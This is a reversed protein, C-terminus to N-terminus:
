SSKAVRRLFKLIEICQDRALRWAGYVFNDFLLTVPSEMRKFANEEGGIHFGELATKVPVRRGRVRNSINGDHIVQLWAPDGEIQRVPALKSMEPHQVSGVTKCDKFPEFLSLFANSEHRHLYTKEGTYVVGTPFNIAEMGSFRLSKHLREVFDSRLGDDNDLRTTLLWEPAPLMEKKVDRQESLGPEYIECLMFRINERGNRVRNARDLFERPTDSNIYILWIFDQCTQAMVSPLCYKEFLDFRETLWAPDLGKVARRKQADEPYRVNFRTVIAHRFNMGPVM